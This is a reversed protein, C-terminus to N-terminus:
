RNATGPPPGGGISEHLHVLRWGADMKRWIKTVIANNPYQTVTYASTPSLVYVDEAVTDRNDLGPPLNAMIRGCRDAMEDRSRARVGGEVIMLAAEDWHKLTAACDRANFGAKEAALADAVEEAVGSALAIGPAAACLSLTLFIGQITRKDV